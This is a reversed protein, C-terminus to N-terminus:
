HDFRPCISQNEDGCYELSLPLFQTGLLCVRATRREDGVGLYNFGEIVDRSIASELDDGHEDDGDTTM